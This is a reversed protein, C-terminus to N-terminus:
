ILVNKAIQHERKVLLDSSGVLAVLEKLKEYGAGSALIQQAKKTGEELSKVDGLVYLSAGANIAVLDSKAGKEKGQLVRVFDSINQEKGGTRIDEEKAEKVGLDVPRVIYKKIRNRNQEVITTKGVNSLEPMGIEAYFTLTKEFGLKVFLNALVELYRESYCGYIRYKMQLPSYINSVLHFPSRVRVQREVFYKRSLKSRNTLKPSIFPVIIPCIGVKKLTKEIQEKTLKLFDVGFVTFMDASGTPSTVAFYAEKAVMYGAAAVVFSATTSVNFSKFKGGGTGSLDTTKKPDFDSTRFKVALKSTASLFGALEDATEGKAHIAGIWTAYHMGETDYVFIHYVLKESEAVTLDNGDVLEALLFDIEHLKELKDEM